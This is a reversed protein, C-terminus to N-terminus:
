WPVGIRAEESTEAELTMEGGGYRRIVIGPVITAFIIGGGHGGPTPFRPSDPKPTILPPAQWAWLHAAGGWGNAPGGDVPPQIGAGRCLFIPTAPPLCNPYINSQLAHIQITSERKHCNPTNAPRWPPAWRASGGMTQSKNLLPSTM